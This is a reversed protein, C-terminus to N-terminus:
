DSVFKMNFGGNNIKKNNNNFSDNKINHNIIM